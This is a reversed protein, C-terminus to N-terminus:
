GFDDEDDDQEDDDDDDKEDDDDDEEDMTMRTMMKSMAFKQSLRSLGKPSDPKNGDSKINM